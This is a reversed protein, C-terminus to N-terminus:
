DDEEFLRCILKPVACGGTTNLERKLEVARRTKITDMTVSGSLEEIIDGMAVKMGLIDVTARDLLLESWENNVYESIIDEAEVYPIEDGDYFYARAEWVLGSDHIEGACGNVEEMLEQHVFDNLKHRYIAPTLTELVEHPRFFTGEVEIRGYVFDINEDFQPKLFAKLIDFARKFDVKEGYYYYAM